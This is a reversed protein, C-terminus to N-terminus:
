ARAIQFGTLIIQVISLVISIGGIVFIAWFTYFRLVDRRDFWLTKLDSPNQSDVYEHLKRLRGGLFPFDARASYLSKISPADIQDYIATRAAAVGCLEQLLPDVMDQKAFPSRMKEFEKIARDHQGFLLRYSCLAEAFFDQCYPESTRELTSESLSSSESDSSSRSFITSKSDRGMCLMACFSPYRFIKLVLTREDFELHLSIADVWEIRVHGVKLITYYSLNSAILSDGLFTQSQYRSGKRLPKPVFTGFNGLLSLFPQKIVDADIRCVLSRWASSRLSKLPDLSDKLTLQISGETQFQSPTYLM